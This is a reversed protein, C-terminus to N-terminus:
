TDEAPAPRRNFRNMAGALGETTWSEAALVAHEILPSLAQREEPTFGSLVYGTVDEQEQSLPPRGIGFRLRDFSDAGWWEIISKLGNHGGPGGGGKLQIRGFPLDLEDHLVLTDQPEIKFFEAAAAISRGSLNMFTQPEIFLTRVNGVLGQGLLAEFKHQRLEVKFRQCLAELIQFGINHRTRLYERGPNGLGCIRKM